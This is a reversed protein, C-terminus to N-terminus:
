FSNEFRVLSVSKIIAYVRMEASLNIQLTGNSGLSREFIKKYFKQVYRTLESINIDICM